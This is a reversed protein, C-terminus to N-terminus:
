AKLKTISGIPTEEVAYARATSFEQLSHAIRETSMRIEKLSELVEPSQGSVKEARRTYGLIITLPNNIDHQLARVVEHLTKLQTKKLAIERMQLIEKKEREMLKTRYEIIKCLSFSLLWMWILADFNQFYDLTSYTEAKVNKFFDITAIFLYSYIIYGSLVAPYKVFFDKAVTYIKILWNMTLLIHYQHIGDPSSHNLRLM